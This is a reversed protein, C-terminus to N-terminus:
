CMSNSDKTVVHQPSGSRQLLARQMDTRRQIFLFVTLSDIRIESPSIKSGMVQKRKEITNHFICYHIHKIYVLSM